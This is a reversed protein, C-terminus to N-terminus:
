TMLYGDIAALTETTAPKAKDEVVFYEARKPNFQSLPPILETAAARSENGLGMLVSYVAYETEIVGLGSLLNFDINSFARCEGSEGFWRLQTVERNYVTASLFLVASKKSERRLATQAAEASLPQLPPTALARAEPLIPPAVRNLILKRDGLNIQTQELVRFQINTQTQPIPAAEQALSVVLSALTLATAAITALSTSSLPLFHKM